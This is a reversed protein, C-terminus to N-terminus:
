ALALSLLEPGAAGWRVMSAQEYWAGLVIRTAPAGDLLFHHIAPRHTHGHLLHQVGRQRLVAAVAHQNVDTIYEPKGATRAQSGRRAAAAIQRRLGLPLALFAAQLWPKRVRRRFKQYEVDDTCLLDGHMVLVREGEIQLIAHEELLCVGTEAAFREGVLFDRNGRLFFCPPGDATFARLAAMVERHHRDTDDDGIWAEFLDGLIYIARAERAQRALFGLFTRTIDPRSAHLHLDSIFLTGTV